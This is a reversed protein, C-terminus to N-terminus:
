FFNIFAQSIANVRILDENTKTIHTDERIIKVRNANFRSNIYTLKFAISAKALTIKIHDIEEDENM